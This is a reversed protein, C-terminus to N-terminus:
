ACHLTEPSEGDQEHRGSNIPEGGFQRGSHTLLVSHELWKAQMLWFHLSGQGPTQPEKASHLTTLWVGFQIQMEPYSPSGKMPQRSIVRLFKAERLWISIWLSINKFLVELLFLKETHATEKHSLHPKYLFFYLQNRRTDAPNCLFGKRLSDVQIRVLYRNGM